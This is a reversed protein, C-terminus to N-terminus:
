SPTEQRLWLTLVPRHLTQRTNTESLPIGHQEPGGTSPLTCTILTGTCRDNEAQTPTQSVLERCLTWAEVSEPENDASANNKMERTIEASAWALRSADRQSLRQQRRHKKVVFVAVPLVWLRGLGEASSTM